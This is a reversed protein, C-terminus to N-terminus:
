STSEPRRLKRLCNTTLERWLEQMSARQVASLAARNGFRIGDSADLVMHVKSKLPDPLDFAETFHKRLVFGNPRRRRILSLRSDLMWATWRMCRRDNLIYLAPLCCRCIWDFIWSRLIYTSTISLCILLTVAAIENRAQVVRYWLSASYRPPLFGPTPELPIWYGHGANVELWVHADGPQVAYENDSAIYHEPSVYFGTVLRTEYGLHELMLAAATAFLYSPGNRSHLFEALATQLKGVEFQDSCSFDQRLGGVVSSVQEWGRSTGDAYRHALAALDERCDASVSKHEKGPSCHELLEQMMELDLQGNVFRVVTYDPVHDHGPMSICDRADYRFFDARTIQDISWLKTGCCSPIIESGYRTFKAAEPVPNRYPSLSSAFKNGRVFFWSQGYIGISEPEFSQETVQQASGDPDQLTWTSGDFQDFRQVALHAGPSGHWFFLANSVLDDTPPQRQASEREISFEEDSSSRNAESFRGEEGQVDQPSLAQARDITKKILPEGFEDSFVDFLSPKESDLFMDTEVAGFSTPHNKAALLADGNGVGSRAASDKSSTGGSTPTLETNLKRWVPIRNGFTFVSAVFVVVGLGIYSWRWGTTRDIRQAAQTNLGEWHNGVLWWMCLAIWAYALWSASSTESILTSFLAVFGSCVVSLSITRSCSALMACLLGCWGLTGLMIIEMGNGASYSKAILNIIWPAMLAVIALLTSAANHQGSILQQQNLKERRFWAALLIVATCIAVELSIFFVSDYNSRRQGLTALAVCAM